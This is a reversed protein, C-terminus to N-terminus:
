SLHDPDNGINCTANLFCSVQKLHCTQMKLQAFTLNV